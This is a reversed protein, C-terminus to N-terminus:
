LHYDYELRKGPPILVEGTLQDVFRYFEDETLQIGNVWWQKQDHELERAPGDLRHPQGNVWWEQGNDWVRAPGDIRHLKGKIRWEQIGSYREIAPGDRRHYDGDADHWEYGISTTKRTSEGDESVVHGVNSEGDTM